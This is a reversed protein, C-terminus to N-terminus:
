SGSPIGRTRGDLEKLMDLLGDGAHLTTDSTIKDGYKKPAMKSMLWKRTDVRLRARAIVDQDVIEVLKGNREVERVDAANDDAINIIDEAMAEAQMERARAYQDRFETNEENALWRFITAKDPMAKDDCVSRLSEGDILRQCIAEAVAETFASPRGTKQRAM